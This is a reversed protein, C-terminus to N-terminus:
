ATFGSALAEAAFEQSHEGIPLWYFNGQPDGIQWGQERLADVVRSREEIVSAVVEDTYAAEELAALAARAALANVGFPTSATRLPAILESAGLAYGARLGALGYAKSFTRLVILNDRPHGDPTK